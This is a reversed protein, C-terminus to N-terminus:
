ENDKCTRIDSGPPPAAKGEHRSVLSELKKILTRSKRETIFRASQVTDVLLKLEALEFVREGIHYTWTTEM